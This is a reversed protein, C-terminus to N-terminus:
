MTQRLNHSCATYMFAIRLSRSVAVRVVCCTGPASRPPAIVCCSCGPRCLSRMRQKCEKLVLASIKRCCTLWKAGTAWCTYASAVGWGARREATGALHRLCGLAQLFSEAKIIIRVRSCTCNARDRSKSPRSSSTSRTIITGSNLLFPPRTTTYVAPMLHIFPPEPHSSRCICRSCSRFTLAHRGCLPLGSRRVHAQTCKHAHLGGDEAAWRISRLFPSPGSDRACPLRLPSQIWCAHM